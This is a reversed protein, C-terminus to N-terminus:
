KSVDDVEKRRIKRVFSSSIIKPYYIEDGEKRAGTLIDNQEIHVTPLLSIPNNTDKGGEVKADEDKVKIDIGEFDKARNLDSKDSIQAKTSETREFRPVKKQLDSATKDRFCPYGTERMNADPFRIMMFPGQPDKDDFAKNTYDYTWTNTQPNYQHGRHNDRSESIWNQDSKKIKFRLKENEDERNLAIRGHKFLVQSLFKKAYPNDLVTTKPITKTYDNDAATVPINKILDKVAPQDKPISPAGFSKTYADAM